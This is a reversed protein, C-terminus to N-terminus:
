NITQRPQKYRYDVDKKIAREFAMGRSIRCELKEYPIQLIDAWEAITHTENNYTEYHNYSVNNMQTKQNVWRCNEPSYGKNNDIRDITCEGRKADEKYSNKYAWDKFASFDSNWEDCLKIGREGYRHYYPNHPNNCRGKMSTWVAYLRTNTEGHTTITQRMRDKQYCGCSKTQGIRLNDGTVVVENGCDCKCLWQPRSKTPSVKNEVRRIVILRGFRMGTLDIFAGM